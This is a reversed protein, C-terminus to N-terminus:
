GMFETRLNQVMGQVEALQQQLSSLWVDFPMGDGAAAAVGLGQGARDLQQQQQQLPLEGAAAPAAKFSSSAPGAAASLSPLAAASIASSWNNIAENIQSAWTNRAAEPPLNAAAALEHELMAELEAAEASVETNDLQAVVMEVMGMHGVATVATTASNPSTPSDWAPLRQLVPAAGPVLVAPQLIAAVGRSSSAARMSYTQQQLQRQLVQCKQQLTAVHLATPSALAEPASAARPQLTLRASGQEVLLAPVTNASAATSTRGMSPAHADPSRSAAKPPGLCAAAADTVAAAPAVATDGPCSDATCGFGGADCCVPTPATQQEDLHQAAQGAQGHQQQSSSHQRHSATHRSRKATRATGALERLPGASNASGSRKPKRRLQLRARCSRQAGDFATLVQLKGCQFCFRWPVSDGTKYVDDAQMHESCVKKKQCYRKESLMEAQCGRVKCCPISRAADGAPKNQERGEAGESHGDQHTDEM